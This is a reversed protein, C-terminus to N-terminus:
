GHATREAPDGVYVRPVRKSIRLLGGVCAGWAALEEAAVKAAGQAGLVVVEDGVKCTVDTVDVMSMDMTIAGVVPVRKEAVIVEASGSLRRSYGDAYGLAMTAIRSPRSTRYLGGYSVPAGVPLDRLAVIRSKLSLM